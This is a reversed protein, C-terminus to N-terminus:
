CKAARAAPCRAGDSIATKISDWYHVVASFHALDIGRHDAYSRYVLRAFRPTVSLGLVLSVATRFEILNLYGTHSEDHRRFIREMRAPRRVIGTVPCRSRLPRPFPRRRHRRHRCACQHPPGPVAPVGHLCPASLHANAASHRFQRIGAGQNQGADAAVGAGQGVTLVRVAALQSLQALHLRRPPLPRAAAAVHQVGGRALGRVDDAEDREACRASPRLAPARPEHQASRPAPPSVRHTGPAALSAAAAAAVRVDSPRSASTTCTVGPHLRLILAPAAPRPQSAPECRAAKKVLYDDGIRAELQKILIKKVFQDKYYEESHEEKETAAGSASWSQQENQLVSLKTRKTENDISLRAVSTELQLFLCHPLRGTHPDPRIPPCAASVRQTRQVPGSGGGSGIEPRGKGGVPWVGRCRVSRVQNDLVAVQELVMEEETMVLSPGISSGDSDDAPDPDMGAGMGAVLGAFGSEKSAMPTPPRRSRGPSAFCHCHSFLSPAESHPWVRGM